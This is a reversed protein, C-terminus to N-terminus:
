RTGSVLIIKSKQKRIKQKITPTKPPTLKNKKQKIPKQSL